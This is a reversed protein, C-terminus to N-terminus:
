RPGRAAAAAIAVRAAEVENLRSFADREVSEAVARVVRGSVTAAVRRGIWGAHLGLIWGLVASVLIAAALLLLPIPVPGLIPAELTGVPIGSGGAVVLIGIWAAAFILVAGAVLQLAGILSWLLSRPIVLDTAAARTARDIVRALDAEATPTGLAELIRGRSPPPTASAAEVLAARVPNLVRGMAGRTRWAALFAGPDARRRERGTMKGALALGRGLLSGGRTRARQLVAERVQRGLGPADVLALAGDIAEQVLEDRRAVPLLPQLGDTPDIGAATALADAAEARDAELKAAVIVKAHAADALRTRLEDIGEGTTASVVHIVPRPIGDAVLRRRLDEVVTARDDPALRDAKNLVFRLRDAHPALERWYAHVRADDYKEPDVVWTVADIRPLLTDVMARHADRVSDVDPLDLICVDALARHQHTLTREVKLWELLGGLELLRPTAVWAIPADTTPRIARAPSIEEGALANLVSSKGVGTGGALAMVYVTGGFGSRRGIRRAVQRAEAAEAELGISRAAEVATRLRAVAEDLPGIEIM